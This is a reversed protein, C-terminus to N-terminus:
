SNPKDLNESNLLDVIAKRQALYGEKNTEGRRIDSAIAQDNFRLAENLLKLRDARSIELNRADSYLLDAKEALCEPHLAKLCRTLHKESKAEDGALGFHFALDKDAESDGDAAAREAEVIEAPTLSYDTLPVSGDHYEESGAGHVSTDSCACLLIVLALTGSSAKM